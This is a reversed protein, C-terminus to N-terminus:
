LEGVGGASAATCYNKLVGLVALQLASLKEKVNTELKEFGQFATDWRESQLSRMAAAWNKEDKSNEPPFDDLNAYLFLDATQQINLVSAKSLSQDVLQLLQDSLLDFAIKATETMRPTSFKPNTNALGYAARFHALAAVYEEVEPDAYLRGANYLAAQHPGGEGAISFYMAAEVKDTDSYAFGLAVQSLVHGDEHNGGPFALAHWIEMSAEIGGRNPLKNMAEAVKYLTHIDGSELRALVHQADGDDDGYNHDRVYRMAKQLVDIPVQTSSEDGKRAYISPIQLVGLLLFLSLLFLITPYIHRYKM